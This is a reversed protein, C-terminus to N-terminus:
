DSVASAVEVGNGTNSLAQDIQDVVTFSVTRTFTCYCYSCTNEVSLNALTLLLRTHTIVCSM